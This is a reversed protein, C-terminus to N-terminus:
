ASHGGSEAPSEDQFTSPEPPVESQSQETQMSRMAASVEDRSMLYYVCGVLALLSTVLRYCLGVIAGYGAKYPEHGEIAFLPYLVDLCYELPGASLPIISSLNALPALTFHQALSTTYGFLSLSTYYIAVSFVLHVGITLLFAYLLTGPYQRYIQLAEEMLKRFPRGVWPLAGLLACRWGRSSSPVLVLAFLVTTIAILTFAAAVAFRAEYAEEYIFGSAVAMVGGMVFMVYVGIMRDMIVSAFAKDSSGQYQRATLWAKVADGGVMGMPAFNIVYGLIGYRYMERTKLPIGLVRVLARWRYFTLLVTILNLSFAIPILAWYNPSQEAIKEFVDDSFARQFLWVFIAVVLGLKLLTILPKKLFSSM